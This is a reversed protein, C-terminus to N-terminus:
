EEGDQVRSGRRMDPQNNSMGVARKIDESTCASVRRRYAIEDKEEATLFSTEGFYTAAAIRIEERTMPIKRAEMYQRFGLQVKTPMCLGTADVMEQLTDSFVGNALTESLVSRRYSERERNERERGSLGEFPDEPSKTAPPPAVAPPAPEEAPCLRAELYALASEWVEVRSIDADPHSATFSKLLMQVGRDLDHKSLLGEWAAQIAATVAAHNSFRYDYPQYRWDHSEAPDYMLRQKLERLEHEKQQAAAERAPRDSEYKRRAEATKREADQRQMEAIERRTDATRGANTLSAIGIGSNSRRM